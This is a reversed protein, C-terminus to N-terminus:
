LANKTGIYSNCKNYIAVCTKLNRSVGTTNVTGNSGEVLSPPTLRMFQVMVYKEFWFSGFIYIFYEYDINYM